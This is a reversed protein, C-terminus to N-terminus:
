LAVAPLKSGMEGPDDGRFDTDGLGLQGSSNAGWCKVEDTSLVACAHGTGAAIAKAHAGLSVAPLADGMHSPDTGRDDKDGLGLQGYDNAGWCKVHGSKLIACTFDRGAAVQVAREGLNVPRLADGLEELQNGHNETDGTGLQGRSNAGWCKIDDNDLLACTHSGGASVRRASRGRGLNVAFLGKGMQSADTGRDETSGIGLQGSRNSGWCAVQSGIIACTHSGGASVQSAEHGRGLDVPPLNKGMDSGSRGRSAQDGLGLQGSDNLGWCKISGDKLLACTHNGGATVATALVGGTLDAFVLRDSTDEASGTGLQGSENSGGCFIRGAKGQKEPVLACTHSAGATLGDAIGGGLDVTALRKGMEGSSDGRDATDGLGLQGDGNGGWMKVDGYRFLAGSHLGGAVVAVVTNPFPSHDLKEFAPLACGAAGAFVTSCLGARGLMSKGANM